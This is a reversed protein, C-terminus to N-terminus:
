LVEGNKDYVERCPPICSAKIISHKAGRSLAGGGLKCFFLPLKRFHAQKKGGRRTFYYPQNCQITKSERKQDWKLLLHLYGHSLTFAAALAHGKTDLDGVRM